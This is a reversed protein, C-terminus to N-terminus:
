ASRAPRRVDAAAAARSELRAASLARRNRDFSARAILPTANAVQQTGLALMAELKDLKQETTDQSRIGAARELQATFPHLASNIHYPSCQYRVRRHAGLALSTPSCRSWARNESGAEGSILVAQGQGQWAMSSARSRSNSKQRAASLAWRARPACRRSAAKRHREVKSRGSRSPNPSARSRAAASAAFLSYIALCSARRLLLSLRGRSRWARSGPLSVNPADGVM